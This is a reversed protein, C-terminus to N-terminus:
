SEKLRTNAADIRAAATPLGTTEWATQRGPDRYQAAVIGLDETTGDLRHVQIRTETVAPIADAQLGCDDQAPEAPTPRTRAAHATLAAAAALVAVTLAVRRRNM